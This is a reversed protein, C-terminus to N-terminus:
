GDGTVWRGPLPREQEILRALLLRRHEALIAAYDPEGAVDHCERPDRELDWLRESGDAHILYRHRATRLNKWGAHELLASERGAFTDDSLAAAFSRGQIHPPIQVGACELLTPVIDVAEVIASVVRDPAVVGAPWRVLLPVRGVADGGPYGQGYKPHEGTWEGHESTFVVITDEAQQQQELQDLIRGVYHDVEGIMAYGGHRAAPPPLKTLAATDRQNMEVGQKPAIWPAHTPYFGTLCLFPRDPQQQALFAITQEAVFARQISCADGAFAAAGDIPQQVHYGAGHLLRALTPTDPPFPVGAHALGLTAPYMGTLFSARSPICMPHQVFYHDFNIGEAALWDLNPTQIDRNGNAGLADWRQQDTSIILINPRRM